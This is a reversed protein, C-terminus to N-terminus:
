QQEQKPGDNEASLLMEMMMTQLTMKFAFFKMMM